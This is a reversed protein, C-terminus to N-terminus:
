PAPATLGVSFMVSAYFGYFNGKHMKDFNAWWLSHDWTSYFAYLNAGGLEAYGVVAVLHDTQGDGNSDVLFVMPRHSVNIEEKLLQWTM